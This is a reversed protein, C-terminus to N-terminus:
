NVNNLVSKSKDDADDLIQKEFIYKARMSAQMSCCGSDLESTENTEPALDIAPNSANFDYSRFPPECNM